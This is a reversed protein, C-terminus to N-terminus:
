FCYGGCYTDVTSYPMGEYYYWFDYPDQCQYITNYDMWWYVNQDLANWINNYQPYVTPAFDFWFASFDYQDYGYYNSYQRWDNYINIYINTTQPSQRFYQDVPLFPGYAPPMGQPLQPQFYPNYGGNPPTYNPPMQYGGNPPMPAQYYPSGQGYPNPTVSRVPENKGCGVFSLFLVPAIVAVVKKLM